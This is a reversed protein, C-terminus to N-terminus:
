VLHLTNRFKRVHTLRLFCFLYVKRITILLIRRRLLCLEMKFFSDTLDGVSCSKTPSTQVGIIDEIKLWRSKYKFHYTISKHMLKYSVSCLCLPSETGCIDVVALFLNRSSSFITITHVHTYHRVNLSRCMISTNSSIIM